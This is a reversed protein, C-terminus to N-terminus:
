RAPSTTYSHNSGESGLGSDPGKAAMVDEDLTSLHLHTVAEEADIFAYEDYVSSAPPLM